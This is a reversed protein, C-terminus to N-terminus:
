WVQRIHKWQPATPASWTVLQACAVVSVNAALHPPLESLIHGSILSPVCLPRWEPHKHEKGECCQTFRQAAFVNLRVTLVCPFMKILLWYRFNVCVYNWSSVILVFIDVTWVAMLDDLRCWGSGSSVGAFLLLTKRLNFLLRWLHLQPLAPQHLMWGASQNIHPSMVVLWDITEELFSMSYHSAINRFVAIQESFNKLSSPFFIVRSFFTSHRKRWKVSHHIQSYSGQSPVHPWLRRCM